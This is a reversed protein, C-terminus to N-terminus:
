PLNERNPPETEKSIEEPLLGLKKRLERLIREHSDNEMLLANCSGCLLVPLDPVKVEYKRGHHKVTATHPVAAPRVEEKGCTSCLWPFPRPHRKVPNEKQTKM